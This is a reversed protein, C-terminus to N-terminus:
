KSKRRDKSALPEMKQTLAIYKGVDVIGVIVFYKDIINFGPKNDYWAGGSFSANGQGWSGYKMLGVVIRIPQGEAYESLNVYLATGDSGTDSIPVLAEQALYGLFNEKSIERPGQFSRGHLHGLIIRGIRSELTFVKPHEVLRELLDKEPNGHFMNGRSQGFASAYQTISLIEVGRFIDELSSKWTPDRKVDYSSGNVVDRRYLLPPPKVHYNARVGGSGRTRYM